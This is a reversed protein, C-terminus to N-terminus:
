YESAASVEIGSSRDSQAVPSSHPPPAAVARLTPKAVVVEVDLRDIRDTASHIANLMEQFASRQAPYSSNQEDLWRLHRGRWTSIGEYSRGVRLLFASLHQRRLRYDEVAKAGTDRVLDRVAEHTEDPVWVVTPM